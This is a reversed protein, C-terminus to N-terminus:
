YQLGTNATSKEEKLVGTEKRSYGEFFKYKYDFLQVKIYLTNIVNKMQFTLKILTTTSLLFLIEYYNLIENAPIVM